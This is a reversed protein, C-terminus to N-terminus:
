ALDLKSLPKESRHKGAPENAVGSESEDRMRLGRSVLSTSALEQPCLVTRWDSAPMITPSFFRQMRTVPGFPAM